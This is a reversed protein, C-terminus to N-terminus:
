NFTHRRCSSHFKLVKYWKYVVIEHFNEGHCNTGTEFLATTLLVVGYYSFACALWIVWLLSTTLRLEPIFLDALRGRKAPKGDQLLYVTFDRFYGM